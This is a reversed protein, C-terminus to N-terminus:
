VGRKVWNDLMVIADHIGEAKGEQRGVEYESPTGFDEAERREHAAVLEHNRMKAVLSSRLLALGATPHKHTKTLEHFEKSSMM